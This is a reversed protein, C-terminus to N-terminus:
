KKKAPAKKAAPKKVVAKKAPKKKEKFADPIQELIMDKVEDITLVKIEEMETIKKSGRKLYVNEKGFKIFPGYRGNEVSIKEEPWNHIYRNAEKDVKAAILTSAESETLNDFDFRAPVNIYLSKWKLFPGFRGKGKTYGEGEYTGVPADEVKKAEILEVARAHDVSQPDETRPISIFAEGWKVYPGFRGQGVILTLDEYSGIDKPFSFLGLAQELTVDEIYIGPSLNAYRPKEDEALESPAGIQIVPGFRSMRTLVTRGTAPDIGLIREGSFRGEAGLAEEISAHFPSYFEGLMKTWELKGDAIQDFQSEVEATFSYQMFGSFEQELYDVVVFAIDTPALKKAEIVVYGRDQITQITPAYTSPRGIGESELKKVLSAETYRPPPLSFKQNGAFNESKVQEGKKIVPLKKSESEEDQEDDTGEIYLKMFGPFKIVEGKVIWDESPASVPSFHYTTTEIQAEQMQSAVTREWILRYLKAEMSDLGIRDPSKAIETPRIAEHAEQASAQKTKYKRGNPISYEKGYEKEIFDRAAGIALDSLNVSDTRMYTIHGNQYLRQAIDMTMKVGYGLKRSAEQQLTSTTFPAGPTRTRAKVESENLVFQENQPFTFILNGKKDKQTNAVSFDIGHSQFFGQIDAETKMKAVKGGVKILEIMMPTTGGIKAMIKWSEEPVFARIEREREVLIKVAVSQVRGASLGPRVKKWLVPSVEYGVIRDLIRRSQQANVLDLYIKRPTEIAHEIATKTIEHFVIRDVSTPDLGLAMCLHWGIAEGERDEDTAIWIKDAEKALKKLETVRKKKEPSIEYAPVFGGAIDIGMNKAPLDRIHGFSAEVRYDSGLFKEITKGKAPSEVIVLNKVM